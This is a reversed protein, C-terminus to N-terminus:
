RCWGGGGWGGGGWGWPRGWGGYGGGWGWPRYGGYGYGYPRGWGGYYGYPRYVVPAPVVNVVPGAYVPRVYATQAYGPGNYNTAILAGDRFVCVTGQGYNWTTVSGDRSSSKPDGLIARVQEKSSGLPLGPSDYYTCGTFVLSLSLVALSLLRLM